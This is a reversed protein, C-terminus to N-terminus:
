VHAHGIVETIDRVTGDVSTRPPLFTVPLHRIEELMLKRLDRQYREFSARGPAEGYHELGNVAAGARSRQWALEPPVDLFLVRRPQPFRRWWDFMPNEAVGALRCKALIKYYYSDVLVPASPESELLRDRLHVVATQLLAAMFDPSYSRGLGPVVDDVLARRLEALLQHGSGLFADDVSVIRVGSGSAALKAMASSKGAHDSGLLVDFDPHVNM